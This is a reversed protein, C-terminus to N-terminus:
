YYGCATLHYEGCQTCRYEHINLDEYTYKEEYEWHSPIEYEGTYQNMDTEQIFILETKSHSCNQM